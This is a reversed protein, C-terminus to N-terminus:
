KTNKELEVFDERMPSFCDMVKCETIAYASHLVNSPIHASMGPTLLMTKGGLTFELEGSIVHTWQEHIHNHEPARVGKELTVYGFTAHQSHAFTGTIGEFIKLRKKTSFDIFAMTASKLYSPILM